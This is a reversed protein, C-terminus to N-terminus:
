AVSTAVGLDELISQAAAEATECAGNMYGQSGLSCHEGAFWLNGVREAESGAFATWQGPRYCSYSGLAYPDTTWVMRVASGRDVQNISPFIQELDQTLAQAHSDPTGRGLTVGQSGGRLDTVWGGPGASYRASEWTNQFELDTYISITSGYRTRWIREKFPVALKTCTGYGLQAIAQRKAPPLEIALEVQRLVSFPLTLLIRSYTREISSGGQRLSVQYRGDSRMRVSELATGTEIADNLRKALRHPIQDNGGVVHYREDSSGYTSWKGAEAGILFLMNLCSQADADLGFETVYAVQVLQKIVPSIPTSALYEALSLRDLSIAHPSPAYYTINRTNLTALDQSIRNALPIFEEIIRSHSIKQGQFYLIEPELGADAARLDALELGLEAALSRVHTHRSDIFEGGLEVVSSAEAANLSLLRGGVRHNAEVVDVAVGAQRLRYAATLGAIGAGVVLVRTDADLRQSIGADHAGAGLRWWGSSGSLIGLGAMGSLVQRRSLQASAHQNLWERVEAPPIQTAAAIRSVQYAQRLRDILGTRSMCAKFFHRSFTSVFALLLTVLRDSNNWQM